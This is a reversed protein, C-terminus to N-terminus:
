QTMFFRTTRTAPPSSPSGGAKPEANSGTTPGPRTLLLGIIQQYPMAARRLRTTLHEWEDELLETAEQVYIVDYEASMIKSVKDLGGAM